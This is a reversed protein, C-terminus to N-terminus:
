SFNVHCLNGKNIFAFENKQEFGSTMHIPLTSAQCVHFGPNSKGWNKEKLIKINKNMHIHTWNANLEYFILLLNGPTHTTYSHYQFLITDETLAAFM